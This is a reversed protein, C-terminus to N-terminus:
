FVVCKLCLSESHLSGVNIRAAKMRSSTPYWMVSRGVPRSLPHLTVFLHRDGCRPRAKTLYELIADGTARQIPYRQSGGRKSHQVVFTERRCDFDKLQLRSVEGSRLGYVVFLMLIARTRLAVSPPRKATRLLRQVEKWTPGEPLGEFRYIKPSQVGKAIGAVCWGRQEGRLPFLRSAITSGHLGIQSEM